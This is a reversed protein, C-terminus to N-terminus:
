STIERILDAPQVPRCRGKSFERQADAIDKAIEARRRDRLRSKLLEVLAQQDEVPLDDAAELVKDFPLAKPM